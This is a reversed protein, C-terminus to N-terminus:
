KEGGWLYSLDGREVEDDSEREAADYDYAYSVHHRHRYFADSNQLQEISGGCEHEFLDFMKDALERDTIRDHAETKMYYFLELLSNLTEAYNEPDIFSSNSFVEILLKAAGIGIEVRGTDRLANSRTEILELAQERTLVLGRQVTNENYETLEDAYIENNVSQLAFVDRLNILNAM